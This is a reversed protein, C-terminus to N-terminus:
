RIITTFDRYHLGGQDVRSLAQDIFVIVLSRRVTELLLPNRSALKLWVSTVIRRASLRAQSQPIPISIVSPQQQQIPALATDCFHCTPEPTERKLCRELAKTDWM